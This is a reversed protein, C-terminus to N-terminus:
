NDKKLTKSNQTVLLARPDIMKAVLHMVPEPLQRILTPTAIVKFDQARDPNNIVDVIELKFEVGEDEFFNEIKKGLELNQGESNGVFLILSFSM